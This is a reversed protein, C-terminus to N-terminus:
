GPQHEVIKENTIATPADRPSAHVPEILVRLVPACADETGIMM